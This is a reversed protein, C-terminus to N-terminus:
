GRPLTPRRLPTLLLFLGFGFLALTGPEAVTIGANYLYRNAGSDYRGTFNWRLWTPELGCTSCTATGTGALDLRTDDQRLVNVTDLVFTFLPTGSASDGRWTVPDPSLGPDFSFHDVILAGIPTLDGSIGSISGSLVEFQVRDANAIDDPSGSDGDDTLNLPQWQGSFDISGFIPAALGAAPHVALLIGCLLGFRIPRAQIM